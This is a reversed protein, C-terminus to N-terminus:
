RLFELTLSTHAHRFINKGLFFICLASPILGVTTSQLCVTSTSTINLKSIHVCTTRYLYCSWPPFFFLLSCSVASLLSVYVVLDVFCTKKKQPTICVKEREHLGFHKKSVATRERERM